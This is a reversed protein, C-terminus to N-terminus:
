DKREPVYFYSLYLDALYKRRERSLRIMCQSFFSPQMTGGNNQEVEAECAAAQYLKWASEARQFASVTELSYETEPRPTQVYDLMTRMFQRHLADERDQEDSAVIESCVNEHQSFTGCTSCCGELGYKGEIERVVETYQCEAIGQEVGNKEILLRLEPNLDTIFDGSGDYGHPWYCKDIQALGEQPLALLALLAGWSLLAPLWTSAVLARKATRPASCRPM